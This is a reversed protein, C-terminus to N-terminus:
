IVRFMGFGQSSKAGLGIQYLMDLVKPNGELQFRGHWGTIYTTKFSTPVKRFKQNHLPTITLAFDSDANGLSRWKRQANHVLSACFAADEPSLFVTHGDPLTHYVVVPSLTQIVAQSTAIHQDSVICRSITAYQSGLQIISEDAFAQALTEIFHPDTSRIEMSCAQQFIIRKNQIVYNGRFPSFTFHKYSRDETLRGENHLQTAFESDTSLARYLLGHQITRYAIPLNITDAKISLFLQM